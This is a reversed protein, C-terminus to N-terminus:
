SVHYYPLIILVESTTNLIPDATGMRASDVCEIVNPHKILKYYEVEKMALQQDESGYCVIKKIAYKKHTIVDEVLLVTSFGSFFHFIKSNTVNKQFYEDGKYFKYFVFIKKTSLSKKKYRM